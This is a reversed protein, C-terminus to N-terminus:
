REGEEERRGTGDSGADAASGVLGSGIDAKISLFFKEARPHGFVLIGRGQLGRVLIRLLQGAAHVNPHLVM